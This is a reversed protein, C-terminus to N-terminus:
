KLAVYLIDVPDSKVVRNKCLPRAPNDCACSWYAATSSAVTSPVEGQATWGTTGAEFSGNTIIQASALSAFSSVIFAGTTLLSFKKTM